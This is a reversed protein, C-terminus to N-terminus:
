RDQTQIANSQCQIYFLNQIYKINISIYYAINTVTTLGQYGAFEALIFFYFFM